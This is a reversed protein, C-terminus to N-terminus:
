RAIGVNPVRLFIQEVLISDSLNSKKDTELFVFSYEAILLDLNCGYDIYAIM